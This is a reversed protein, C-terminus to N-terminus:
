DYTRTAQPRKFMEGALRLRTLGVCVSGFKLQKAPTQARL